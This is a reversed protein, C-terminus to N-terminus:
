EIQKIKCGQKGEICIQLDYMNQLAKKYQLNNEPKGSLMKKKYMEEIVKTIEEYVLFAEQFAGNEALINAKTFYSAIHYHDKKIIYDLLGLSKEVNRFKEPVKAYLIALSYAFRLDDTYTLYGRELLFMATKLREEEWGLLRSANGYCIGADFLLDPVPKFNILAKKYYSVSENYLNLIEEPENLQNQFSQKMFETALEYSGQDMLAKGIKWSLEGQIKKEMAYQHILEFLKKADESVKLNYKWKKLDEETIKAKRERRHEFSWNQIKNAINDCSFFCINILIFIYYLIKIKM